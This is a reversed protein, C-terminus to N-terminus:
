MKKLCREIVEPSLEEKIIYNRAGAELMQKIDELESHFSVAVVTINRYLDIIKQTAEIGNMVPMELDMFVIDVANKQLIDICELGNSAEMIKEVRDKFHEELFFRFAEIFQKNDDVILVIM